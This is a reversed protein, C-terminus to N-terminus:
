LNAETNLLISDQSYENLILTKEKRSAKKYRLFITEFYEKKPRPSM